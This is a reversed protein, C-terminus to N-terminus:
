RRMGSSRFRHLENRAAEAYAMAEPDSPVEADLDPSRFKYSFSGDEGIYVRLDGEQTNGPAAVLVLTKGIRQPGYNGEANGSIVIDAEPNERALRLAPEYESHALIVLIDCQKRVDPAVKRVAEFMDTVTADVGGSIKAPATVGIFGVRVKDLKGKIRPGTIEKIIFAPPAASPTEFTGNASILNKIMPVAATRQELGQRTLLKRAFILDFRGLNIVDIPWQSYAIAVQENQLMVDAM